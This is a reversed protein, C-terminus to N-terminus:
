IVTITKETYIPATGDNRIVTARFTYEGPLLHFYRQYPRLPAAEGALPVEESGVSAVESTSDWEILLRRNAENREVRVEVNVEAGRMGVQALAFSRLRLKVQEPAPSAASSPRGGIIFFFFFISVSWRLSTRAM